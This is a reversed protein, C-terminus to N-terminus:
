KNFIRKALIEVASLTGHSVCSSTEFLPAQKEEEPLFERWNGSPQLVAAGFKVELSRDTGQVFDTPELPALILGTNRPM